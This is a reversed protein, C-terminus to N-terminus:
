SAAWLGSCAATTASSWVSRCSAIRTAIKSTASILLHNIGKVDASEHILRRISWSSAHVAAQILCNFGQPVPADAGTGKEKSDGVLIKSSPRRRKACSERELHSNRTLLREQLAPGNRQIPHIVSGRRRRKGAIAMAAELGCGGKTGRASRAIIGGPVGSHIVGSNSSFVISTQCFRM